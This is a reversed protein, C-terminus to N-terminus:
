FDLEKLAKMNEAVIKVGQLRMVKFVMMSRALGRSSIDKFTFIGDKDIGITRKCLYDVIFDIERAKFNPVYGKFLATGKFEILNMDQKVMEVIEARLANLNSGTQRAISYRALKSKLVEYDITSTPRNEAYGRVLAIRKGNGARYAKALFDRGTELTDHNSKEFKTFEALEVRAKNYAAKKKDLNEAKIAGRQYKRDALEYALRKEETKATRDKIEADIFESVVGLVLDDRSNLDNMFRYNLRDARSIFTRISTITTDINALTYKKM